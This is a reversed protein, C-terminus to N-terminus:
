SGSISNKLICCNIGFPTPHARGEGAMEEAAAAVRTLHRAFAGRSINEGNVAMIERYSYIAPSTYRGVKYGAEKLATSIYALTSGKGNTGAAHIFKLDDQPNGLRRMLEIINELGLVRGYCNVQEIYARSEQYNM